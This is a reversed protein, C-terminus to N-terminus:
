GPDRYGGSIPGLSGKASIANARGLYAAAGDGYARSEKEDVERRCGHAGQDVRNPVQHILAEVGAVSDATRATVGGREVGQRVRLGLRRGPFGGHVIMM